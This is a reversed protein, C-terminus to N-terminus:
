VFDQHHVAVGLWSALQLMKAQPVAAFIQWLPEEAQVFAAGYDLHRRVWVRLREPPKQALVDYAGGATLGQRTKHVAFGLPHELGKATTVYLLWSVWHWAPFHRLDTEVGPALMATFQSWQWTTDEGGAEPQHQRQIEKTPHVNKTNVHPFNKTVEPPLIQSQPPFDKAPDPSSKPTESPFIQRKQTNQAVSGPSIEPLTTSVGQLANLARAAVTSPIGAPDEQALHCLAAAAEEPPQSSAVLAQLPALDDRQVCSALAKLALNYAAEDTPTLPLLTQVALAFKNGRGPPRRLFAAPNDPTASAEIEAVPILDRGYRAKKLGLWAAVRRTTVSIARFGGAAPVGARAARHRAAWYLWGITHGLLPLHHEIFYWPIFLKGEADVLSTELLEAMGLAKALTEHPLNQRRLRAAIHDRLTANAEAPAAPVETEEAPALLSAPQQQLAQALAAIPDTALGFRELAALVSQLDRPTLPMDHTFIYRNPAQRHANLHRDREVQVLPALLEQNLINNITRPTLRSWHALTARSVELTQGAPIPRGPGYPQVNALFYTQRLAVYLWGARTGLYPLWRLFYGPVFIVRHPQQLADRLRLSVAQLDLAQPPTQPPSVDAAAQPVTTGNAPTDSPSPATVVFAVRVPANLIGRLANELPAKLRDALWDRAYANVVGVTLVGDDYALPRADRVWADFDARNLTYRLQATAQQWAQAARALTPSM